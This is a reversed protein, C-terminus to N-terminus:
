KLKRQIFPLPTLMLWLAFPTAARLTVLWYKHRLAVMFHQPSFLCTQTKWQAVPSHRNQSAEEAWAIEWNGPKPVPSSFAPNWQFPVPHEFHCLPLFNRSEEQKQQEPLGRFWVWLAVSAAASSSQEGSQIM